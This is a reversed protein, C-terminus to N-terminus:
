QTYDLVGHKEQQVKMSEVELPWHSNAHDRGHVKNEFRM